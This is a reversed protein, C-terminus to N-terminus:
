FLSTNLFIGSGDQAGGWERQHMWNPNRPEVLVLLKSISELDLIKLLVSDLDGQM